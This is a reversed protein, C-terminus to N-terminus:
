WNDSSGGGSSAGGGFDPAPDFSPAPDYSSSPNSNDNGDWGFTSPMLSSNEAFSTERPEVKEQAPKIAKPLHSIVEEIATTTLVLPVITNMSSTAVEEISVAPPSWIEEEIAPLQAVPKNLWRYLFYGFLTIISGTILLIFFIPNM